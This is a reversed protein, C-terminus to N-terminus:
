TLVDGAEVAIEAVEIATDWHIPLVDGAVVAVLEVVTDVEDSALEGEGVHASANLETGGLGRVLFRYGIAVNDEVAM